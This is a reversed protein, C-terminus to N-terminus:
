WGIRQSWRKRFSGFDRLRQEVISVNRPAIEKSEACARRSQPEAQEIRRRRARSGLDRGAAAYADVALPCPWVTAVAVGGRIRRATPAVRANGVRPHANLFLLLDAFAPPASTSAYPLRLPPGYHCTRHRPRRHAPRDTSIFWVISYWDLRSTVGQLNAYVFSSCCEVKSAASSSITAKRARRQHVPPTPPWAPAPPRISTASRASGGPLAGLPVGPSIMVGDCGARTAEDM